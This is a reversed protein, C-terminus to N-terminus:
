VYYNDLFIKARKLAREKFSLLSTDESRNWFNLVDESLQKLQRSKNRKALPKEGQLKQGGEIGGEPFYWDKFWTCGNMFLIFGLRSLVPPIGFMLGKRTEDDVDYSVFIKGAPPLDNCFLYLLRKEIVSDFYHTLIKEKVIDFDYDYAIEIWPHYWPLYGSFFTVDMINYSVNKYKFYLTSTKEKSSRGQRFDTCNLYTTDFSLGNSLINQINEFM